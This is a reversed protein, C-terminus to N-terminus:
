PAESTANSQVTESTMIITGTAEGQPTATLVVEATQLGDVGASRSFVATRANGSVTWDRLITWGSPHWATELERAWAVVPGAGTFCILRGGHTDSLRLSPQTGFPLPVDLGSDAAHDQGRNITHLVWSGDPQPLAMAWCLLRRQHEAHASAAPETTRVGVVWPLFGGLEYVAWEGPHEDTPTFQELSALLQREAADSEPLPQKSPTQLITRCSDLMLKTVFEHDGTVQRRQMTWPQDGFQLAVGDPSEWPAPSLVHPAATLVPEDNQWWQSAWGALSLGAAAVIAIAIM